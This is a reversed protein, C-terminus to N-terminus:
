TKSIKLLDTAFSKMIKNRSFNNIFHDVESKKVTKYTSKIISEVCHDVEGPEFILSYPIYDRVFNSSYGQIGAVIPKGMAAYEFIKSPLVRKFAPINDLHLFLINSERYYNLLKQRNVPNIITVNKIKLKKLRVILKERASGDGIIVFRYKVGLKKAVDPVIKHLSQAYGINGAYLINFKCESPNITSITEHLFIDDIGNPYFLWKSTDIGKEEFYKSFGASVLNVCNANTLVQKDLYSFLKYFLKGIFRNKKEFIDSITESFIDRLDIAYPKRILISALWTLIATMLRGSTGILYDPKEKYCIKIAKFFYISFSFAQSVMSGSHQPLRIRYIKLNRKITLFETKIEYSKYRNPSSTIVVLSNKADMQNILNEVLSKSRFSGASLDPPYYFTFFCFKM